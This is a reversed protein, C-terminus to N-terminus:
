VQGHCIRSDLDSFISFVHTLSMCFTVVALDDINRLIRHYSRARTHTSERRSSEERHVSPPRRSFKVRVPRRNNLDLFLPVSWSYVEKKRNESAIKKMRKLINPNGTQPYRHM